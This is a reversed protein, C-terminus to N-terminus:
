LEYFAIFFVYKLIWTQWYFIFDILPLLVFTKMSLPNFIYIQVPELMVYVYSYRIAPLLVFYFSCAVKGSVEAM